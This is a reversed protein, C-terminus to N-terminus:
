PLVLFAHCLGATIRWACRVGCATGRVICALSSEGRRCYFQREQQTRREMEDM